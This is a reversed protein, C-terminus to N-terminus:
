YILISIFATLIFFIAISVLHMFGLILMKWITRASSQKYIRKLSMFFYITSLIWIIVFLTFSAFFWSILIYLAFLLLLFSHLHISYILCEIYFKASRRYVLYVFFAFLPMLAFMMYSLNKTLYPGIEHKGDSSTRVLQHAIYKNLATAEMGNAILVSDIQSDSLGRLQDSSIKQFSLNVASSETSNNSKNKFPQVSILLFFVFSIFIYLRIPQVYSKRKGSNFQTTLFGPKFLLDKLTRFSKSDLHLTSELLEGLLHKIAVNLDHNEQGCQPCYQNIEQFTLGCNPCVSFKKRHEKM